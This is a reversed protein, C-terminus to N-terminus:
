RMNGGLNVRRLTDGQLGLDCEFEFKAGSLYHKTSLDCYILLLIM